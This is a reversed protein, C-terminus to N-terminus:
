DTEIADYFEDMEMSSQGGRVNEELVDDNTEGPEIFDGDPDSLGIENEESESEEEDDRGRRDNNRDDHRGLIEKTQELVQRQRERYENAKERLAQHIELRYDHIWWVLGEFLFVVLLWTFFYANGAFSAIGGPTTAVAVSPIWALVLLFLIIGEVTNEFKSKKENSGDPRIDRFLEILVFGTAPFFTLCTIAILWQCHHVVYLAFFIHSSIM